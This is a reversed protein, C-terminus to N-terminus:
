FGRKASRPKRTRFSLHRSLLSDFPSVCPPHRPPPPLPPPAAPGPPPSRDPWRFANPIPDWLPHFPALLPSTRLWSAPVPVFPPTASAVGLRIPPSPSCPLKSSRATRPIPATRTRFEAPP